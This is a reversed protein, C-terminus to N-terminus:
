DQSQRLAGGGEVATGEFPLDAVVGSRHQTLAYQLRRAVQVACGQAQLKFPQGTAGQQLKGEGRRFCGLHGQPGAAGVAVWLAGNNIISCVVYNIEM